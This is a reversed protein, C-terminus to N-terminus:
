EPEETTLFIKRLRLYEKKLSEEKKEARRKAAERAKAKRYESKAEREKEFARVKTILESVVIKERDIVLVPFLGNRPPISNYLTNLRALLYNLDEESIEEWDSANDVLTGANSDYYHECNDITVFAIKVKPMIM